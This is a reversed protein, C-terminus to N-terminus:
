AFAEQAIKKALNVSGLLAIPVCFGALPVGNPMQFVTSFEILFILGGAHLGCAFLNKLYKMGPGQVGRGSIDALGLPLFVSRVAIELKRAFCGVSMLIVIVISLLQGAVLYLIEGLFQCISTIINNSDCEMALNVLYSESYSIKSLPDAKTQMFMDIFGNSLKYGMTVLDKSFYVFALGTALKFFCFMLTVPSKLSQEVKQQVDLLFYYVCLMAGLPMMIEVFPLVKALEMDQMVLINKVTNEMVWITGKGGILVSAGFTAADIGDGTTDVEGWTDNVDKSDGIFSEDGHKEKLYTFVESQTGFYYETDGNGDEIRVIIKGLAELLHDSDLKTLGKAYTKVPIMGVLIILLMFSIIIHKRLNITM